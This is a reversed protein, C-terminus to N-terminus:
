SALVRRYLAAYADVALELGFRQEALRRCREAAQRGQSILRVLEVAAKALDADAFGDLLVGADPARLLEDLDGVGSTTVVPLGCALYESVKVPSAAVQARGPRRFSLGARASRLLSPIDGPAAHLAEVGAAPDPLPQGEPVLILFRAGPRQRRFVAHFRLMETALYLGSWSGAYVLDYPRDADGAPRFASLDVACPIVELRPDPGFERRYRDTLVVIGKARRLVRAELRRLLRYRAGGRPLLGSDAYEEAMLGRHDFIYPTAAATHVLDAMLAPVHSRAHLLDFPRRLGVGAGRIVDVAAFLARPRKRYRLRSWWIGDEMLVRGTQQHQEADTDHKEFSALSMRFGRKALGRVYPLVQSQGLPESMATYSLFLVRPPETWPTL